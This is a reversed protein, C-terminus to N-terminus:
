LGLVLLYMSVTLNVATCGGDGRAVGGPFRCSSTRAVSGGRQLGPRICQRCCSGTLIRLEPHATMTHKFVPNDPFNGEKKKRKKKKKKISHKLFYDSLTQDNHLALSMTSVKIGPELFSNTKHM